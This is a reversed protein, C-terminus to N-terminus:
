LPRVLDNAHALAVLREVDRDRALFERMYRGTNRCVLGALDDVFAPKRGEFDDSALIRVHDRFADEDLAASPPEVHPGAACGALWSLVTLTSWLRQLSM